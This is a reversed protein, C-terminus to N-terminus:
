VAAQHAFTDIEVVQISNFWKHSDEDAVILMGKMCLIDANIAAKRAPSLITL